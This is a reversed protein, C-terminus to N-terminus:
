RDARPERVGLALVRWRDAAHDRIAVLFKGLRAHRTKGGVYADAGFSRRRGGLNRLLGLLRCGVLGLLRRRFLDLFRGLLCLRHALGHRGGSGTAAKLEGLAGGALEPLETDIARVYGDAEAADAAVALGLGLTKGVGGCRLLM